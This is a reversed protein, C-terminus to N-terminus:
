SKNKVDFINGKYMEKHNIKIKLFNEYKKILKLESLTVILIGSGKNGRRGTRGVRHLYNEPNEPLDINYIHTIGEIDLGRAAIDSAVLVQLKGSKFGDMTKKRDQKINTGYISDAKIGHHQLKSTLIDIEKGNSMFVIAKEPKQIGILKRLIDIKERQDSLFYMHEITVPVEINKECIILKPDKMVEKLRKINNESVTASFMLIQREKLTTKIIALINDVNNKDMLRDAEDLVITKITHASIKRKKILELIRGSSGVIIHPKEKLKEVQRNVNVNGIVLASRIPTGDNKSLIEIVRTVQIALEHTPVLIIAQMEKKEADIKEFLPLLYALTKGSGTQSKVIIDKNELITPIVMNQVNTPNIINNENLVEIVSNNINMSKFTQSM